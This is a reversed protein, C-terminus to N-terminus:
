FKQENSVKSCDGYFEFESWQLENNEILVDIIEGNEDKDFYSLEKATTKTKLTGRIRDLELYNQTTELFTKGNKVYNGESDFESQLQVEEWKGMFRKSSSESDILKNRRYKDRIDDKATFIEGSAIQKERFEKAFKKYGDTDKITISMQDYNRMFGETMDIEVVFPIKNIPYEEYGKPIEEKTRTSYYLTVDAISSKKPLDECGNYSSMNKDKYQKCYTHMFEGKCTLLLKHTEYPSSIAFTPILLILLLLKKM